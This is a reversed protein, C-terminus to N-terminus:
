KCRTSPLAEVEGTRTSKGFEFPTTPSAEGRVCCTIFPDCSAGGCDASTACPYGCSCRCFGHKPRDATMPFLSPSLSTKLTLDPQLATQLASAASAEPQDNSVPAAFAASVFLVCLGLLATLMAKSHFM